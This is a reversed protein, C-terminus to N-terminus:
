MGIRVHPSALHVSELIARDQKTIKPVSQNGGM